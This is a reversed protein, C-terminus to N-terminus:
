KRGVVFGDKVEEEVHRGPMRIRFEPLVGFVREAGELHLGPVKAILEPMEGAVGAWGELRFLERALCGSTTTTLNGVLLCTREGAFLRCPFRLVLFTRVLRDLGEVQQCWLDV